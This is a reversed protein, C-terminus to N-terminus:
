EVKVLEINKISKNSSVVAFYYNENLKQFHQYNVSDALKICSEKLTWFRYFDELTKFEHKFYESLNALNRNKSYEVDIGCNYIDFCAMVINRSHSISFHIPHNKFFPKGNHNITISTDKINYYHQSVTKILYRGITYEYFRKETKFKRDAYPILSDKSHKKKFNDIEIYFIKM